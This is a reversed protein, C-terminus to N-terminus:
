SMRDVIKSQVHIQDYRRRWANNENGDVQTCRRTPQNHLRMSGTSSCFTLSYIIEVYYIKTSFISLALPWKTGISVIIMALYKPFRTM